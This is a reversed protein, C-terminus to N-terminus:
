RQLHQQRPIDQITGSGANAATHISNDTSKEYLSVTVSIAFLSLILFIYKKM